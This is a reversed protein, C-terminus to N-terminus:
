CCTAIPPGRHFYTKDWLSLPKGPIPAVSLIFYGAPRIFTYCSGNSANFVLANFLAIGTLQSGSHSHNASPLYPHSHTVVSGDNVHTHLCFANACIFQAFVALLISAAIKRAKEKMPQAFTCFIRSFASLPMPM